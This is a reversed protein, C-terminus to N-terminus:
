ESETEKHIIRGYIESLRSFYTFKKKKKKHLIRRSHFHHDEETVSITEGDDLVAENMAELDLWRPFDSEQIEPIPMLITEQLDEELSKNKQHEEYDYKADEYIMWLSMLIPPICVITAIALSSM